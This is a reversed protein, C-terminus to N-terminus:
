GELYPLVGRVIDNPFLPRGDYKLVAGAAALGTEMRIVRGLQATTNQEVMVFRGAKSLVKAAAQKPFPWLESFCVSGVDRGDARLLEVAETVAGRATGWGVLLVESDAHRVDPGDMEKEMDATKGNRKETMKIRQEIEETLHGDEDHEESCATVLAKGRCPLARPSIGSETVAYRRYAAPDNMDKDGVIHRTVEGDSDFAADSWFLSDCLYQDAMVIAPVQYKEALSFAKATLAFAEEPDAPAFVFRPFEDQSAHIMFMLDAQGTRTALGTAPGPRQANVVVVPTESMAAFGLAETMLSFGGGSTATMARAGAFAAGIVMNLAAIEDEAQEVVLPFAGMRETLHAMIGTAPSMPYFAGFRCDAALAGLAIAETGEILRGSLAKGKGAFVGTFAATKVANRGLKAAAINMDLVTPDKDQFMAELEGALLDEPAGLMALCAGAAVTNAAIRGGAEKALDEFSIHITGAPLEGAERGLIAAGSETLEEKHLPYTREDMAILLDVRHRPARVPRDGIRVQIFSHGGRIRSEFHNVALTYLGAAHCCRALLSGVTQIGQGAEGGITVTVDVSM